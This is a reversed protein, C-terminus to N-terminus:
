CYKIWSAAEEIANRSVTLPPQSKNRFIRANREKWISWTIAALLTQWVAKQGNRNLKRCKEWTQPLSGALTLHAPANSYHEALRWTARTFSCNVFLHDRDETNANCLVCTPPLQIGKRRLKDVTNVRNHFALWIFFRVKLPAKTKWLSKQWECLIGPNRGFTYASKSSFTGSQTWRWTTSGTAHDVCTSIRYKSILSAIDRVFYSAHTPLTTLDATSNIDYLKSM